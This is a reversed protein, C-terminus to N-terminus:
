VIAIIKYTGNYCNITDQSLVLQKSSSNYSVGYYSPAAYYGKTVSTGGYVLGCCCMEFFSRDPMTMATIYQNNNFSFSTATPFSIFFLPREINSYTLKQWSQGEVTGSTFNSSTSTIIKRSSGTPIVVYFLVYYGNFYFKNTSTGSTTITLTGNSYSQSIYNTAYYTNTSYIGTRALTSGDYMVQTITRQSGTANYAIIFFMSPQGSLGSFSISSAGSYSSPSHITAYQIGLGYPDNSSINSNGSGVSSNIQDILNEQNNIETNCSSLNSVM